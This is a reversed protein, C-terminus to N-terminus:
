LSREPGPAHLSRRGRRPRRGRWRGASTTWADCRLRAALHARRVAAQEQPRSIPGLRQSLSAVEISYRWGGQWGLNDLAAKAHCMACIRTLRSKTCSALGRLSGRQGKPSAAKACYAFLLLMKEGDLPYAGRPDPRILTQDDRFGPIVRAFSHRMEAIGRHFPDAEGGPEVEM